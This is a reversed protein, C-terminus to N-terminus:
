KKYIGVCFVLDDVKKFFTIKEELAGTKPNKYVYDVSGSGKSNATDIIEKRFLKGKVDPSNYTNQGVLNTNPHAVMTGKDDYIFVYLEKGNNVASDKKMIADVIFDLGKAKYLSIAKDLMALAEDKEDAWSINVMSFVFTVLLFLFLKKM